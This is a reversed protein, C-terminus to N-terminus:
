AIRRRDAECGNVFANGTSAQPEVVFNHFDANMKVITEVSGVERRTNERRTQEEPRREEEVIERGGNKERAVVDKGGNTDFVNV